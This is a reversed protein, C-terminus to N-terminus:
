PSIASNLVPGNTGPHLPHGPSCSGRHVPFVRDLVTEGDDIVPRFQTRCITETVSFGGTQGVLRAIQEIPM